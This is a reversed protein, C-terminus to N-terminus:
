LFQMEIKVGPNRAEFGRAVEGWIKVQAPNAEIHLWRVTTQAVANGAILTLAAAVLALCKLLRM